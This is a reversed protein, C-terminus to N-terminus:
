LERQMVRMQRVVRTRVEGGVPADTEADAVDRGADAAGAACSQGRHQHPARVAVPMEVVLRPWAKIEARRLAGGVGVRDPAEAAGISLLRAAVRRRRSLPAWLFRSFQRGVRAYRLSPRFHWWRSPSHHDLD